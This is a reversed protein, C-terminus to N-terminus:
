PSKKVRELTALEAYGQGINGFKIGMCAKLATM